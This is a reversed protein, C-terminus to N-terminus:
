IGYKEEIYEERVMAPNKDSQLIGRFASLAHTKPNTKVHVKTAEVQALHQLLLLEINQQIWSQMARESNFSSVAKQMINDNISINYTCM